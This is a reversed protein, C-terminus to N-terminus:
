PACQRNREPGGTDGRGWLTTIEGNGGAQQQVAKANEPQVIDEPKLSTNFTDHKLGTELGQEFPIVTNRAIEM